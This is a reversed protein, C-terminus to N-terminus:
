EAPDVQKIGDESLRRKEHVESGNNWGSVPWFFLQSAPIENVNELGYDDPYGRTIKATGFIVDWLFLMNGYNGKYNTVGDSLNKGHHAAHTSPTSIVREVVWMVKDLAKIKYLPADWKVSSHAGFIIVMKIVFYVAYVEGFGMYVLFAATWLSPMPLYYFFGNRYAVRINLYGVDHHTRHLNYLLPFTHSARHWWYQAMDEFVVLMLFMLWWPWDSWAGAHAPFLWAALSSAFFVTLPVTVFFINLPSLIEFLVDRKRTKERNVFTGAILEMVVFAGLAAMIWIIEM